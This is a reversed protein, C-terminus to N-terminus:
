RHFVSSLMVKIYRFNKTKKFLGLALLFLKIILLFLIGYNNSLKAYVLIDKCRIDFRKIYSNPIKSSRQSFNQIIQTNLIKYSFEKKRLDDFFKQDVQDLFLREDYRYDDFITLRVCLCSNIANFKKIKSQKSTNLSLNNKMIGASNPSYITGDPSSIIPTIIDYKNKSVENSLESLWEQTVETDDDLWVIYDNNNFSYDKQIKNLVLNYARSLGVNESKTLYVINKSLCSNENQQAIDLNNSNDFILVQSESSQIVFNSSM